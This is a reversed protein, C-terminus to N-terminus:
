LPLKEGWAQRQHHNSFESQGLDHHFRHVLHVLRALHVHLYRHAAQSLPDALGGLYDPVEQAEHDVQPRRNDPGVLLELPARGELDVLREQDLLVEHVELVM